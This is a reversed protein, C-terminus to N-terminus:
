VSSPAMGTRGNSTATASTCARMQASRSALPWIIPACSRKIAAVATACPLATSVSLRWSNRRTRPRTTWWGVQGAHAGGDQRHVAEAVRGLQRDVQDDPEVP